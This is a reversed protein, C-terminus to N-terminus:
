CKYFRLFTGLVENLFSILVTLATALVEFVAEFVDQMLKEVVAVDLRAQAIFIEIQGDHYAEDLLGYLASLVTNM